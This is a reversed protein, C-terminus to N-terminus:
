RRKNCQVLLISGYYWIDSLTRRNKESINYVPAFFFSFSVPSYKFAISDQFKMFSDRHFMSFNQATCIVIKMIKRSQFNHKTSMPAIPLVKSPSFVQILAISIVTWAVIKFHTSLDQVSQKIKNYCGQFNTDCLSIFVIATRILLLLLM